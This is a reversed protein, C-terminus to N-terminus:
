IREDYKIKRAKLKEGEILEKRKLLRFIHLFFCSGVARASRLALSRM